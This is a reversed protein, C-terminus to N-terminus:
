IKLILTFFVEENTFCLCNGFTMIQFAVYYDVNFLKTTGWTAILIIAIEAGYVATVILLNRIREGLGDEVFIFVLSLLAIFLGIVVLYISLFAKEQKPGGASEILFSLGFCAFWIEFKVLM